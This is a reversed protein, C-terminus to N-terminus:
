TGQEGGVAQLADVKRDRSGPLVTRGDTPGAETKGEHKKAGKMAGTFAQWSLPIEFPLQYRNKAWFAPREETYLMREGEGIALRRKGDESEKLRTRYSAFLLIDLWDLILSAAKENLDLRYRDYSESDPPNFTKVISHGVLIILMGKKTRLEDLKSLLKGWETLAFTYGKGYGFAEINQVGEDRCVKKFLKQETWDLSDIFVSKYSHDDKLLSDVASILTEYDDCHVRPFDLKGIGDETLLGIPSPAQAVFTTKGIAQPGYIGIRPPVTSPGTKVLDKISLAM